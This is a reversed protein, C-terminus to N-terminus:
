LHFTPWYSRSRYILDLTRRRARGRGHGRRALSAIRAMDRQHSRTARTDRRSDQQPRLEWSDGLWFEMEVLADPPTYWIIAELGAARIAALVRAAMVRYLRLAHREGIRAALRTKVTSLRPAKPLIAVPPTV